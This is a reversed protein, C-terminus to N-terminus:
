HLSNKHRDFNSHNSNTQIQNQILNLRWGFQLRPGGTLAGAEWAECSRTVPRAGDPRRGARVVRVGHTTVAGRAREAHAGNGHRPRIGSQAPGAPRSRPGCHPGASHAWTKWNKKNKNIIGFILIFKLFGYFVFYFKSFVFYIENSDKQTSRWLLSSWIYM